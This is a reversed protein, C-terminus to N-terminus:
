GNNAAHGDGFTQTTAKTDEDSASLSAIRGEDGRTAHANLPDPESVPLHDGCLRDRVPRAPRLQEGADEVDVGVRARGALPALHPRHAGDERGVGRLPDAGPADVDEHPGTWGLTLEGEGQLGRATAV